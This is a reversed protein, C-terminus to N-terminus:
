EGVNGGGSNFKDKRAILFLGHMLYISQEQQFITPDLGGFFGKTPVGSGKAGRKAVPRSM